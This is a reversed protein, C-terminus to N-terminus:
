APGELIFLPCVDWNADDPSSYGYLELVVQQAEPVLDRFFIEVTDM